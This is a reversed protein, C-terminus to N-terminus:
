VSTSCANLFRKFTFYLGPEGLEGIRFNKKGFLYALFESIEPVIIM